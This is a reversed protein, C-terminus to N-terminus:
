MEHRMHFLAHFILTVNIDLGSIEFGFCCSAATLLSNGLKQLVLSGAFGYNCTPCSTFEDGEKEIKM